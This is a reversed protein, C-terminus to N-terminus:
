VASKREDVMNYIFQWITLSSKKIIVQLQPLLLLKNYLRSREVPSLWDKNQLCLPHLDIVATSVRVAGRQQASTGGPAASQAKCNWLAVHLPCM